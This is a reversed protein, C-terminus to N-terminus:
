PSETADADPTTASSDIATIMPVTWAPWMPSRSTARPVGPPRTLSVHSVLTTVNKAIERAQAM